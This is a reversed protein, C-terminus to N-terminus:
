PIRYNWQTPWDWYDNTGYYLWRDTHIVVVHQWGPKEQYTAWIGTNQQIRSGRFGTQRSQFWKLMDLARIPRKHACRATILPSTLLEQYGALIFANSLFHACNNEYSHKCTCGHYYRDCVTSLALLDAKEKGWEKLQSETPESLLGVAQLPSKPSPTPQLPRIAETPPPSCILEEQFATLDGDNPTWLFRGLVHKGTRPNLRYHEYSDASISKKTMENTKRRM